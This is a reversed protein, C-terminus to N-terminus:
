SREFDIGHDDSVPRIPVMPGIFGDSGGQYMLPDTWFSEPMEAGRAKRVLQVHNVYASGDAWQYARPFPSACARPDFSFADPDSGIGRSAEQLLPAVEAWRDLAAQLTSAISRFLTTYPFLTDTRTSRPPRRIRLCFSFNIM